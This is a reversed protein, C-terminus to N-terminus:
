TTSYNCKHQMVSSCSKLPFKELRINMDALDTCKDVYENSANKISPSEYLNKKVIESSTLRIDTQFCDYEFIHCFNQYLGLSIHLWVSTYQIFIIPM